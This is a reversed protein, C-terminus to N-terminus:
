EPPEGIVNPIFPNGLFGDYIADIVNLGHKRVTSIYSRVACFTEAGSLTRFAGSVKQKVKVMRADREAQNNDFPIRFDYMFALVQPQHNHLRDLLNKPPSQKPRGRKKSPEPLQPNVQFGAAVIENYRRAFHGLREPPLSTWEPPATDVEAKINLLLDALHNAWEQRYQETVFQLERLHHANCFSHNCNVFQLYSAWHDHVANGQFSPLIGNDRMAEQGRKIHVTYFTLLWTSVVHLWHLKGAVRLGTEDFHAVDADILQQRIASLAPASKEVFAKSARKILEEAPQHGYLDGLTECTRAWPLLQYHNFYVALAKFRPGYQVPQSVEAPFEAKAQQGCQPCLKIEAQHETVELSVPPVDFVQRRECGMSAVGHLDTACHPCLALSHLQTHDPKEVQILTQGSHGKQGGRRRGSKRRLSSTKPKKLGDSSPPRGSNRSNKALQDQLKQITAAQEAAQKELQDVRVLASLLLDVLTEKDLKNLQERDLGELSPM